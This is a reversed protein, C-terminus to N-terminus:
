EEETNLEELREFLKASVENLFRWDEFSWPDQLLTFNCKEINWKDSGVLKVFFMKAKRKKNKKDEFAYGKVSNTEIIPM